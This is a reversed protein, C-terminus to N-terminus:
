VGSSVSISVPTSYQGVEADDKVYVGRYIWVAANSGTGPSPSPSGPTPPTVVTGPLTYTDTYSTKKVSKLFKSGQGDGRDVYLNLWDMGKKKFTIKPHGGTALKVKLIPQLISTDESMEEGIIRLDDGIDTTYAQKSKITQILLGTRTFIGAPVSAPAPLIEPVPVPGIPSGIPAFSLIDKFEVVNKSDSKRNSVENIIYAYMLADAQVQGIETASIGLTAAYGGLRAAFNNLWIVRAPETTPLYYKKKM